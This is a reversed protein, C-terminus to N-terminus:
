IKIRVEGAFLKEVQNSQYRVILNCNEDIGEVLAEECSDQNKCVEVRKGIIFSRSIYEEVVSQKDFSECLTAFNTLIQAVLRDKGDEQRLNIAGAVDQIEKAFGGKPEVVNVGIGVVAHAIKGMADFQAETLIGACKKNDFYVDNVWKIPASKGSLSEIARSVSVAAVVTLMKALEEDNPHTLISFYVGSDKPSFFKRDFRGRGATQKQACLVYGECLKSASQKLLTNTSSVRRKVKITFPNSILHKEIGKATLKKM